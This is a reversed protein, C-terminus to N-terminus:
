LLATIIISIIAGVIGGLAYAVAKNKWSGSNDLKKKMEETSRTLRSIARAMLELQEPEDSQRVFEVITSPSM